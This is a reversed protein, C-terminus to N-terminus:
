VLQIRAQTATELFYAAPLKEDLSMTVIFTRERSTIAM